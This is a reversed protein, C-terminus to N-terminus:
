EPFGRKMEGLGISLCENGAWLRKSLENMTGSIRDYREKIDNVLREKKEPDIRGM